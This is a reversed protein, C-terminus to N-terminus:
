RPRDHESLNNKQDNRMKERVFQKLGPLLARIKERFEVSCLGHKLYKEFVQILCQYASCTEEIRGLAFSAEAFQVLLEYDYISIKVNGQDAPYPITLAYRALLYGLLDNHIKLYYRAMYYLPEARTPRFLFARHYSEIFQEARKQQFEQLLGISLLSYFQREPDGGMAARKEFMELARSLNRADSYCIALYFLSQEDLPDNQIKKELVAADKLYKDPDLSRHGEHTVINTLGRLIEGKKLRSCTLTEHVAGQWRWDPQNAILFQRYFAESENRNLIFYVDAILESFAWGDEAILFEDADIFLLYDGRNKALTLAENRNYGFDVWPREYLEGPIEKLCERIMSQTGDTSGTDVIVWYDILNQVSTLCRRIVPNEDKVIMNLCITQKIRM